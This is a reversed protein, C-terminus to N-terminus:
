SILLIRSFDEKTVYNSEHILRGNSYYRLYPILNNKWVTEKMKLFDDFYDSKNYIFEYINLDRQEELSSMWKKMSKWEPCWDQTMIVVVKAKSSIVDNSFEHKQIAELVQENTLIKHDM